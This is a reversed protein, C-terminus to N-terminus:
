IVCTYSMFIFTSVPASVHIIAMSNCLISIVDRDWRVAGPTCLLLTGSCMVDNPQVEGSATYVAYPHDRRKACKQLVGFGKPIEFKSIVPIISLYNTQM